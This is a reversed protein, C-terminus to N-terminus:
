ARGMIVMGGGVRGPGSLPLADGFRLQVASRINIVNSEVQLLAEDIKASVETWVSNSLTRDFDSLLYGPVVYLRQELQREGSRMSMLDVKVFLAGNILRKEEITLDRGRFYRIIATKFDQDNEDAATPKIMLGQVGPNLYEDREAESAVFDNIAKCDTAFVGGDTNPDEGKKLEADAGATEKFIYWMDVLDTPRNDDIWQRYKKHFDTAENDIKSQVDNETYKTCDVAM